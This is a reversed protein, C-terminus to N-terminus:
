LVSRRIESFKIRSFWADHRKKVPLDLVESWRFDGNYLSLEEMRDIMKLVICPNEIKILKLIKRIRRKYRKKVDGKIFDSLLQKCCSLLSWDLYSNDDTLVFGFKYVFHNQFQTDIGHVCLLLRSKGFVPNLMLKRTLKVNFKSSEIRILSENAFNYISNTKMECM